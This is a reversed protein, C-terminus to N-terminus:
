VKSICYNYIKNYIAASKVVNLRMSIRPEIVGNIWVNVIKSLKNFENRQKMDTLTVNFLKEYKDMIKSLTIGISFLDVKDFIIKLYAIYALKVNKYKQLLKNLLKCYYSAIKETLMYNYIQEKSNYNKISGKLRKIVKKPKKYHLLAYKFNSYNCLILEFPYVEYYSIFFNEFEDFTKLAKNIESKKIKYNYELSVGFDILKMVNKDIDYVINELKIDFHCYKHKNLEVLSDVINKYAILIKYLTRMNCYKEIVISKNIVKGNVKLQSSSDKKRTIQKIIDYYYYLEKGGDKFKLNKYTRFNDLIECVEKDKNLYTDSLLERKNNNSLDCHDDLKVHYKGQPDIKDIITFNKIEDEANNEAMVKSISGNESNSVSCKFSPKYVCGYSGQGILRRKKTKNTTRKTRNNITNRLSKGGKKTKNLM